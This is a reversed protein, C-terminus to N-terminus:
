PQYVLTKYACCSLHVCGLLKESYMFFPFTLVEMSISSIFNNICQVQEENKEVYMLTCLDCGM